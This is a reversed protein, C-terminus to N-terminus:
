RAERSGRNRAPGTTRDTRTSPNSRDRATEAPGVRVVWRAESLLAAEAPCGGPGDAQPDAGAAGPARRM